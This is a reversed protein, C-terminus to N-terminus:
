GTLQIYLAHFRQQIPAPSPPILAINFFITRQNSRKEYVRSNQSQHM